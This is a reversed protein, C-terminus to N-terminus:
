VTGFRNSWDQLQEITTGVGGCVVVLLNKVGKLEPVSNYVVSLAAGCAPEVVIRHDAIFGICAAVASKDSVVVSKISHKKSLKLAQDSVKRAGLSTAISSIRDLEILQGHQWPAIRRWDGAVVVM